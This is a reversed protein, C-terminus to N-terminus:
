YMCKGGSHKMIRESGVCVCEWVWMCKNCVRKGECVGGRGLCVACREYHWWKGEWVCEVGKGEWVCEVGKGEWVCEVGKREWVCEVGKREWVCEVGKREWVAYCPTKQYYTVSPIAPHTVILLGLRQLQAQVLHLLHVFLEVSYLYYSSYIEPSSDACSILVLVYISHWTM